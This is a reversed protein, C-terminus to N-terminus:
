AKELETRLKKLSRSLKSRVAGRTLGVADAIEKSTLGAVASLLVIEKEDEGLVNMALEVSCKTIASLETDDDSPIEDNETETVTHIKRSTLMTKSTNALAKFYYAKFSGANKVLAISKYVNLTAQQVADEADETNGLIKCAYLFLERAYLSYLEGFAEANGTRACELLIGADAM